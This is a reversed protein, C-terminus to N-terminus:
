ESGGERTAMQDKLSGRIDINKKISVIFIEDVLGKYFLFLFQM